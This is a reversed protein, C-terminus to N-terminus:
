ANRKRLVAFATSATVMAGLMVLVAGKNCSSSNTEGKAEVKFTIYASSVNGWRDSAYIKVKQIGLKGTDLTCEDGAVCYYMPDTDRDDTVIIDSSPWYAFDFLVGYEVVIPETPAAIVPAEKDMNVLLSGNNGEAGENYNIVYDKTNDLKGDLQVVFESASTAGKAYDVQKIKVERGLVINENEDLPLEGEVLTVENVTFFSATNETIAVKSDFSVIISNKNPAYTGKFDGGNYDYDVFRFSFAKEFFSLPEDFFTGSTVFYTLVTGATAAALDDRHGDDGPNAVKYLDTDLKKNSNDGAYILGGVGKANEPKVYLMSVKGVNGSNSVIGDTFIETPTAWGLPTGDWETNAAGEYTGWLHMGLHEEYAGSADYYGVLINVMDPYAVYAKDAGEFYYVDIKEYQGGKVTLCTTDIFIDGNYSKNAWQADTGVEKKLAILGIKDAAGTDLTIEWYAGFEDVGDKPAPFGAHTDSKGIGWTHFGVSSYDYSFQAYHVVVTSRTAPDITEGEAYLKQPSSLCFVFTAICLFLFVNLIKKM